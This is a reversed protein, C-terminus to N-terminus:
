ADATASSEAFQINELVPVLNVDISYEHFFVPAVPVESAWNRFETPSLVDERTESHMDFVRNVYSTALDACADEDIRAAGDGGHVADGASGTRASGRAGGREEKGGGSEPTQPPVQLTGPMVSRLAHRADALTRRLLRTMGHRTVSTAPPGDEAYMRFCLDMKELLTGRLIVSLCLVFDEFKLLAGDDVRTNSVEFLRNVM